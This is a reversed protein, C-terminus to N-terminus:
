SKQFVRIYDVKMQQPFRTTADPYGPWNGGVAVNFIFFAPLHFETMHDPTIDLKYFYNDDVYWTIFSEDWIMTFVHYKDAYTGSPLKYNGGSQAHENNYGWHLTGYVTNERGSGGIMEMIDIEGCEPWSVNGINNGLMWLAPWIGQGEPLLARIDVRGYTFTKKNRTVMRASTYDSGSYSEERAEIILTGNEQWANEALYYQWENNGWGGAGTEFTWDSTNITASNFEDAWVMSYGDYELPTTYGSDLSVIEDEPTNIIVQVSKKLYKGSSGYARVFVDFTGYDNFTYSFTGTENTEVPDIANEVFFQFQITNEATAQILVETTEEDVSVIEINLNAPDSTNVPEESSCHIFMFLAFIPLAIKLNKLKFLM